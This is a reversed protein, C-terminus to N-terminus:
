ALPARRPSAKKNVAEREHENPDFGADDDFDVIVSGHSSM